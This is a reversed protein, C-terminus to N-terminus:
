RYLNKHTKKGGLMILPFLLFLGGLSITGFSCGGGEFSGPPGSFDVGWLNGSPGFNTSTGVEEIRRSPSFLYGKKHAQLTYSGDSPIKSFAYIGRDNTLTTLAQKLTPDSLTVQVGELSQGKNDTIRGSVIERTGQTFVNYIVKYVSVFLSKPPEPGNSELDIIPLHYWANQDGGWGM